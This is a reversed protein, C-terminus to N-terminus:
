IESSKEDGSFGANDGSGSDLKDNRQGSDADGGGDSGGDNGTNDSSDGGSNGGSDGGSNDGSDDDGGNGGGSSDNKEKVIVTRTITSTNGDSDTTSFVLEHEGRYDTDLEFDEPDVPSENDLSINYSLNDDEDDTITVGEDQYDDGVFINVTEEGNLKIVPSGSSNDHGNSGGEDEGDENNFNSNNVMILLKKVDDKTLCQDDVCIKEKAMFVNAFMNGVGNTADAFFETVRAFVNDFFKKAFFASSGEVADEDFVLTSSALSELNINLQKIAKVSISAIARDDIGSLNGFENYTSLHPDVAATDEAIFGYRVRGDGDNYVFSVSELGNILSLADVQLATIDHKTSRLSSLCADTGSNYVVEKNSTLCLSGAGISSTLGDFGVAGNVSFAKWPTTTGIGVALSTGKTITFGVNTSISTSSAINFAKNASSYGISWADNDNAFQMNSDGTGASDGITTVGTNSVTFLTTTASATSSAIAFINGYTETSKLHISLKAFPSTTGLGLLGAQTFVTTTASSNALEFINGTASANIQKVYLATSGDAIDRDIAVGTDTTRVRSNSASSLNVLGGNAYIRGSSGAELVIGTSVYFNDDTKLSDAASRYLNVDDGFNIGEAATTGRLLSIRAKPASTAFGTYANNVDMGLLFASLSSDNNARFFSATGSQMRMGFNQDNVATDRLVFQPTLNRIYFNGGNLALKDTSLHTTTGVMVGGGNDVLFSTATSSGIAFSPGTIGNSNISLQAWPSTTGIGVFGGYTFRASETKNGPRMIIDGSANLNDIYFQGSRNTLIAGNTSYIDYATFGSSDSIVVKESNGIRFRLNSVPANIYTDSTDALLSYNSGSPSSQALWVGSYTSESGPYGGITTVAGTENVKFTYGTGSISSLRSGSSNRLEFLNSTQTSNAKVVLQPIDSLGQVSLLGWPSTTGVGLSGSSNWTGLPFYSTSSAYIGAQAWLATSTASTNVGFNTTPTFPFTGGGGSIAGCAVVGSSNTTLANSGSCGSIGSITLNTTSATTATIMTTSAYPFTSATSSTATFYSAVVQGVVSLKAYPSTTGIGVNGINQSGNHGLIVNGDSSGTGGSIYINAGANATDGDSGAILKLSGPASGFSNVGQITFSGATVGDGSATISRNTAASINIDGTLSIGAGSTIAGTTTLTGGIFTNGAVGLKSSNAPSTTGIGVNGLTNIIVGSTATLTNGSGAYYPFQGISGTGIASSSLLGLSSTATLTYGSSSNGLLLQGYSPASTLGTGGYLVGISSTASVLGNNAQLPGNLSGIYASGSVTLATTSAYPFTSATSSTAIFYSAVVQGVVSLKAYPSTTGIGVNGANTTALLINGIIGGPSNAGPDIFVNGGNGVGDVYNASGATILIDGGAEDQNLGTTGGLGGTIIVKGGKGINGTGATLFINDGAGLGNSGGTKGQVAFTGAPSTTGVGVRGNNLVIFDTKTSSGIAFSPGSGIGNPNISLQAWPSTTGVGLFGSSNWIGSGAFYGTGSVTLATTSAYPFTSATSTTATFYAGVVQGVISLKAYPSTTGIGVNGDLSIRMREALNASGATASPNTYFSLAGGKTGGGGSIAEYVAAIRALHDANAGADKFLISPGFGAAPNGSTTIEVAMVDQVGTTASTTSAVHLTYLPSSTGIGVFGDSRWTGLPFYSTSSAFIGAQAWLATSTASTNVGFNTASTFPYSFTSFGTIAGCSVVGSSNTNLASSGSCNPASSVTLNTTSATGFYGTGSVTLATSSAYPFTSAISTTATFYSGVIQGLVSLPAYPSSTGIGVNGQFYNQGGSSWIGYGASNDQQAFIAYGSASNNSGLVGYTGGTASIGAGASSDVISASNGGDSVHLGRQDDLDAIEVLYNGESVTLKSSPSLTGVTTTGMFYNYSNSSTAYFNNAVVNGAVSLKSYPSSTGVGVNGGSLISLVSASSPGFFEAIKGAGNQVFSLWSTATSTSNSADARLFQESSINDLTDAVFAAPVAGIVKRPTMEGDWSPSGSSGGIEVGLYLTQNFDVSTLPTSSGLMVSFLGNTVAVRDGVATSRDETWVPSGGTAVTYLYFKMHYTGDAVAVNSTNTLKGQYNIQKNIAAEAINNKFVIGGAFIQTIVMVFVVFVVVSKKFLRRAKIINKIIFNM